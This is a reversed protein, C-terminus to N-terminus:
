PLRQDGSPVPRCRRPHGRSTQGLAQPRLACRSHLFSDGSWHKDGCLVYVYGRNPKCNSVKHVNDNPQRYANMLRILESECSKMNGVKTTFFFGTYGDTSFYSSKRGSPNETGGARRVYLKHYADNAHCRVHRELEKISSVESSCTLTPARRLGPRQQQVTANHAVAPSRQHMSTAQTGLAELPVYTEYEKSGEKWSVKGTEAAKFLNTLKVRKGCARKCILDFSYSQLDADKGKRNSARHMTKVADVDPNVTYLQDTKVTWRGLKLQGKVM